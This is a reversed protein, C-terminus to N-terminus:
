PQNTKATADASNQMLGGATQGLKQVTIIVALLIFSLMVLYELATAGKRKKRPQQTPKEESILQERAAKATDQCASFARIRM